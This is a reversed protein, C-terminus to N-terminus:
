KIQKEYIYYHGKHLVCEEKNSKNQFLFEKEPHVLFRLGCSNEQINHYTLTKIINSFNEKCYDIYEENVIFDYVWWFISNRWDSFEYFIYILGLIKCDLQNYLYIVKGLQPDHIVKEISQLYNKMDFPKTNLTTLSFFKTSFNSDIFIPFLIEDYFVLNVLGLQLPSDTSIYEVNSASLDITKDFYHDLEYLIEGTDYFGLKLYVEKANVNETEVYLKLVPFTNQKNKSFKENEQMLKRFLGKNRYDKEILVSQLWVVTQMLNINYEFTVLNMGLFKNDNQSSKIVFYCGYVPNDLLRHYSKQVIEVNLEKNETEKAMKCIMDLVDNDQNQILKKNKELKLVSINEDVEIIKQEM